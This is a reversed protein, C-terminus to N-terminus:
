QWSKPSPYLLNGPYNPPFFLCVSFKLFFKKDATVSWTTPSCPFGTSIFSQVFKEWYWCIRSLFTGFETVFIFSHRPQFEWRSMSVLCQESDVLSNLCLCLYLTRSYVDWDLSRLMLLFTNIWKLTPKKKGQFGFEQSLRSAKYTPIVWFVVQWVERVQRHRM